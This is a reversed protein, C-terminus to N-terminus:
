SPRGGRLVALRPPPLPTVRRERRHHGLHQLLMAASEDGLTARLRLGALTAECVARSHYRGRPHGYASGSPRVTVIDGCRFCLHPRQLMPAAAVLRDLAPLCARVREVTRQPASSGSSLLVMTRRSVMLADSIVVPDLADMAALLRAAEDPALRHRSM